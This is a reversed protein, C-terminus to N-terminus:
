IVVISLFSLIFTNAIVIKSTPNAKVRRINNTKKISRDGLSGVFEVYDYILEVNFLRCIYYYYKLQKLNITNSFIYKANKFIIYYLIIFFENFFGILKALNRIFFFNSKFSLISCYFYEIDQYYGHIKIEERKTIFKSHVGRRNLVIVRLGIELFLKSIQIQRQIM